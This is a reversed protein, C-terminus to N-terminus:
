SQLFSHRLLLKNGLYGPARLQGVAVRAFGDVREELRDRRDALRTEDDTSGDAHDIPLLTSGVSERAVGDTQARKKPCSVQELALFDWCFRM